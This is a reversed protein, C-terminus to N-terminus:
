TLTVQKTVGNIRVFLGTTTTWMDGDAPTTPAVGHPIRISAAGAISAPAIVPVTSTVAADAVTLRNVATTAFSVSAAGGWIGTGNTGFHLSTATASGGTFRCVVSHDIISGWVAFRQAGGIGVFVTSSTGYIGNTATGFNLSPAGVAGAPLSLVGSSITWAGTTATFTGGNPNTWTGLLLPSPSGSANTIYLGGGSTVQLVANQVGNNLRLGAEGYGTVNKWDLTLQGHATAYTMGSDGAFAGANNFQVQTTAGGATAAAGPVGPVGQPGQAGQPGVPGPVTSPDGEPGQPGIPGPPGPVTSDAGPPGPPGQPGMPGPVGIHMSYSGRQPGKGSISPM